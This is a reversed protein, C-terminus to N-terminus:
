KLTRNWGFSIRPFPRGSTLIDCIVNSLRMNFREGFVAYEFFVMRVIHVTYQLILLKNFEYKKTKPFHFYVVPDLICHMWAVHDNKRFHLTVM